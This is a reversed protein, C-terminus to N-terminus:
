QAPKAAAVLAPGESAQARRLVPKRTERVISLEFWVTAGPEAPLETFSEVAETKRDLGEFIVRLSGLRAPRDWCLYESEDLEGIVREGDLVKVNRWSGATQDVRVLYVRTDTPAVAADASPRPVQQHGAGACAAPLVLLAALALLRRTPNSM